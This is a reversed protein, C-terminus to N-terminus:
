WLVCSSSSVAANQLAGQGSFFRPMQFPCSNYSAMELTSTAPLLSSAVLNNEGSSFPAPAQTSALVLPSPAGSPSTATQKSEIPLIHIGKDKRDRYKESSEKILEKEFENKGLM